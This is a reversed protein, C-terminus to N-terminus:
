KLVKFKLAKKSSFFLSYFLTASLYRAVPKTGKDFEIVLDEFDKGFRMGFSQFVRSNPKPHLNYSVESLLSVKIYDGLANKTLHYIEDTETGTGYELLLSLKAGIFFNISKSRDSKSQDINLFPFLIPVDLFSEYTSIGDLFPSKKYSVEVGTRLFSKPKISFLFNFGVEENIKYFEKIALGSRDYSYLALGINGGWYFPSRNNTADQSLAAISFHCFWVTICTCLLAKM